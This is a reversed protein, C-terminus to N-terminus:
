LIIIIKIIRLAYALRLHRVLIGYCNFKSIRQRRHACLVTQIRVMCLGDILGFKQIVSILCHSKSDGNASMKNNYDLVCDVANPTILTLTDFSHLFSKLNCTAQSCGTIVAMRCVIEMSEEWQCSNDTDNFRKHQWGM